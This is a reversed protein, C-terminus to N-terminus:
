FGEEVAKRKEEDDRLRDEAAKMDKEQQELEEPTLKKFTKPKVKSLNEVESSKKGAEPEPIMGPVMYKYQPRGMRKHPQVQLIRGKSYIPETWKTGAPLMLDIDDNCSDLQNTKM